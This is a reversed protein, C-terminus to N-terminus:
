RLDKIFNKMLSKEGNSHLDCDSDNNYANVYFRCLKYLLQSRLKYAIKKAIRRLRRIRAISKSTAGFGLHSPTHM